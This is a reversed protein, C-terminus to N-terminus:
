FPVQNFNQQESRKTELNTFSTIEKVFGLKVTGRAGNRQKGFIIEATGAPADNFYFDPRYVFMVVDADNGISGSERLDSNQPRKDPRKETERSLQSLAITPVNLDRALNKIMKSVHSVEDTRNNFKKGGAVLQLYDIVLLAVNKEVALQKARLFIEAMTLNPTDDIYVRGWETTRMATATAIRKLDGAAFNELTELTKGNIKAVESLNRLALSDKSMELSFIGVNGGTMTAVNKAINFAFATKGQSSCGAIVIMDGGKMGGMVRDVESFGTLIGMAKNTSTLRKEINELFECSSEALTVWNQQKRAQHLDFLRTTLDHLVKKAQGERRYCNEIAQFSEAILRRRLAYEEVIECYYKVNAVSPTNAVLETLYYAGGVMDLVKKQGLRHSVTVVDVPVEDEALERMVSFIVKHDSVYFSDDEHMALGTALAKAEQLMAGLVRQETIKDSPLPEKQWDTM